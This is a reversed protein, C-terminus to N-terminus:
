MASENIGLHIVYGLNKLLVFCSIKTNVIYYGLVLRSLFWTKGQFIFGQDIM